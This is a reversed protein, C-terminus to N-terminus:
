CLKQKKQDAKPRKKANQDTKEIKWDLFNNQYMKTTNKIKSKKFNEGPANECISYKFHGISTVTNKPSSAKSHSVM